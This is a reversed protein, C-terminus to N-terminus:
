VIVLYPMGGPLSPWMSEPFVYEVKGIAMGLAFLQEVNMHEGWQKRDKTQCANLFSWGAGVNRQFTAPLEMLLAIITEKQAEVRAPHFSFSHVIGKVKIADKEFEEELFLCDLFIENVKESTLEM